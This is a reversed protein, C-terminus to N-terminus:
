LIRVDLFMKERDVPTGVIYPSTGIDQKITSRISCVEISLPVANEILDGDIRSGKWSVEFNIKGPLHSPIMLPVSIERGVDFLFRRRV